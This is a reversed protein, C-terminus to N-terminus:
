DSLEYFAQYIPYLGWRSHIDKEHLLFDRIEVDSVPPHEEPNFTRILQFVTHYELEKPVESNVEIWVTDDRYSVKVCEVTQTSSPDETPTSDLPETTFVQSMSYEDLQVWGKGEEPITTTADQIFLRFREASWMKQRVLERLTYRLSEPVLNFASRLYIIKAPKVIMDWWEKM